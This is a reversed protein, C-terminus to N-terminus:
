FLHLMGALIEIEFRTQMPQMEGDLHCDVPEDAEILIRTVTKHTIEEEGMHKGSMLKPLLALIRPRSVPEVVLLDFHGDDNRAMPALNFMGGIWPGSAVNALTIPGTRVDGDSIIRMNPTAIGEAMGRFIALLYVLDGMPLRYSRAIRTVRADFGIGAGNAFYRDNMKGVDVTRSQVNAAIRDALLRTAHEWDLTIGAAKAFDNGTGTPIVGLTAESRARMIGNTAEHVSGDGGATVIRRGGGDVCQRVREELDGERQSLYVELPFDGAGLLERIRACRKNARGRGAAPNLFLHVTEVPM